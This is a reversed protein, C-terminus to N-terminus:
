SEDLYKSGQFLGMGVVMPDVIGLIRSFLGFIVAKTIWVKVLFHIFNIQLYLFWICVNILIIILVISM